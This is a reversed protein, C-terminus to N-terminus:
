LNELFHYIDWVQLYEFYSLIFAHVYISYDLGVVVVGTSVM